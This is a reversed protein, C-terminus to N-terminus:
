RLKMIFCLAFYPPLNEHPEGGGDMKIGHNHDAAESTKGTKSDVDDSNELVDDLESGNGEQIYEHSHKGDEETSGGHDHKPMESKTLKVQYMGGTEKWEFAKKEDNKDKLARIESGEKETHNDSYEAGVVFRGLLNPTGNKGDCLAWGSPVSDPAGHWMIIAGKPMPQVLVQGVELEGKVQLPTKVTVEKNTAHISRGVNMTGQVMLDGDVDLDSEVTVEDNAGKLAQKLILNKELRLPSKVKVEDGKARVKDICLSQTTIEGNVELATSPDATAIGVHIQGEDMEKQVIPSKEVPLVFEGDPFDLLDEYRLYVNAFGSPHNTHIGSLEFDFYETPELCDLSLDSCYFEFIPSEGQLNAKVAVSRGQNESSRARIKIAKLQDVSAMDWADGVPNEFFIKIKTNKEQDMEQTKFRVPETKHTNTVRIKLASEGQEASSGVPCTNLIRHTGVFGASWPVKKNRTRVEEKEKGKERQNIVDVNQRRNGEISEVTEHFAMNKYGLLVDTRRAGRSSNAGIYGFPFRWTVGPELTFPELGLRFWYLSISGDSHEESYSCEWYNPFDYSGISQEPPFHLGKLNKEFTNPKFRLEFHHNERSPAPERLASLTLKRGSTNQIEVEFWNLKDDEAIHLVNCVGADVLQFELPYATKFTAQATKNEKMLTKIEKPSLARKFFHAQALQGMYDAALILDGEREQLLHSIEAHYEQEVGDRFLAVVEYNQDFSLTLHHWQGDFLVESVEPATLLGVKSKVWCALTTGENALNKFNNIKIHQDGPRDLDCCSGFLDDPVIAPQGQISAIPSRRNNGRFLGDQPIENLPLALLLADKITM